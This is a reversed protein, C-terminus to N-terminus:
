AYYVIATGSSIEFETFEGGIGVGSPITTPSELLTKQSLNTTGGFEVFVCDTICQIWRFNGVVSTNGTGIVEGGQQGQLYYGDVKAGM